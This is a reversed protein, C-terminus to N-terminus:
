MTKKDLKLLTEPDCGDQLSLSSLLENMKNDYELIKKFKDDDYDDDSVDDGHHSGATAALPVQQPAKSKKAKGKKKKNTPM